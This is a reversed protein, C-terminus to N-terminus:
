KIFGLATELISIALPVSLLFIATKGALEAKSALSTQGSDRCTDAVFSTVYGIGVAKLATKFYSMEINYTKLQEALANIPASLNKLILLGITIGAGVAILLSYEANKPKVIICLVSAILCVALIKFIDNTM